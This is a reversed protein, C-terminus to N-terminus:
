QTTKAMLHQKTPLIIVKNIFYEKLNLMEVRSSVIKITM